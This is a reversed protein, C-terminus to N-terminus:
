GKLFQALYRNNIPNFFMSKIKQGEKQFYDRDNILNKTLLNLNQSLEKYNNVISWMKKPITKPIPNYRIGHSFNAIIVPLGMAMSELCISSTGGILIDSKKLITNVDNEAIKFNKPLSQSLKSIIRNRNNTPHFKLYFEYKNKDIYNQAFLVSNIIEISEENLISLAVIIKIKENNIKGKKKNSWLHFFRFAPVQKILLNSNYKCLIKELGTGTVGIKDPLLFNDEEVKTPFLQLELERPIYGLNGISSVEPYFKNKGYNWGKDIVQNEWWDIVRDIKLGKQKIRYFFCYNLFAEITSQFGELSKFEDIIFPKLDIGVFELSNKPLLIFRKYHMFAFIYDSLHFFNEKILYNKSSNNLQKFVKLWNSWYIDLITPVFYISEREPRPINEVLKNYYRDKTIYGPFSFIDILTIKKNLILKKVFLKCILFGFIKNIIYYINKIIVIIRLDETRIAKINTNPSHDKILKLIAKKLIKSEVYISEIEEGEKILDRVLILCCYNYFLRSQITNRSSPSAFWWDMNENFFKSYNSILKTFDDKKKNAIETLLLSADGYKNSKKYRFDLVM